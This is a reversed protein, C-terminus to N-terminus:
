ASYLFLPSSDIDSDKRAEGRVISGFVASKSVRYKKLVPYVKTKIQRIDETM